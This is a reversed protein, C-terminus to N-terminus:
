QPRRRAKRPTGPPPTPPNARNKRRRTRPKRGAGPDDTSAVFDAAPPKVTIVDRTTPDIVVRTGSRIHALELRHEDRRHLYGETLTQSVTQATVHRDAMRQRAHRTIRFTDPNYTLRM